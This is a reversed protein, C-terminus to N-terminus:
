APPDFGLVAKPRRRAEAVTDIPFLSGAFPAVLEAQGTAHLCLPPFV